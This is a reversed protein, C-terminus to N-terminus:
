FNYRLFDRGVSPCFIIHRLHRELCFPWSHQYRIPPRFTDRFFDESYHNGVLTSRILNSTAINRSLNKIILELLAHM